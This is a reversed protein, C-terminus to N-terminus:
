LARAMEVHAIGAEEFVPGAPAFGARAYFGQASTQAHLRVARDGRARAAQMLADLVMRGVGSGRVTQIAAM